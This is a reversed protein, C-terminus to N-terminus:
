SSTSGNWRKGIEESLCIRNYGARKYEDYEEGGLAFMINDTWVLNLENCVQEYTEGYTNWPYDFEYKQILENAVGIGLRPVMDVHNAIDIGDDWNERSYRVGVRLWEGGWFAKSVSFVVEHICDYDNLTLGKSTPAHCFDLLTPIDHRMWEFYHKHLSGYATFPMSLVRAQIDETPPPTHKNAGVHYMFDGFSAIPMGHKLYWHDFAHISGCTIARHPFLKDLKSFDNLQSSMVWYTFNDLFEETKSEWLFSKFDLGNIFEKQEENRIARLDRWSDQSSYLTSIPLEAM